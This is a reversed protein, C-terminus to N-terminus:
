NRTKSASPLTEVLHDFGLWFSWSHHYFLVPFVLAVVSLCTLVLEFRTNIVPLSMVYLVIIVLETTVVNAMIAGVFFGDERKFLADCAPCQHKIHFPSKVISVLGCVPCRLRVARVLTKLISRRAKNM